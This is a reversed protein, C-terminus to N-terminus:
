LHISNMDIGYAGPELSNAIDLPRGQSDETEHLLDVMRVSTLPQKDADLVVMIRPRLRRTRYEAVVVAVEGSSLEILTGAPYIGVAQIFEEVLEAQFDIDKVDYLMKIAASPSTARAYSRHSTIADYCDVIGAIRAFIPIADGSLGQPYGSGNHREHHHAVMDLVDSNMLGTEAMMAVGHRVHERVATLEESTLEHDSNLLAPDVRLKGIDFLLGGIALSRLDSRPLGLQRGLAVGWISAGLSHQYTYKDQEKLRALWICADPNRSISDIMPEVSRKVRVVDVAAGDRAHQFVAELGDSLQQVAEEARPYEEAWDATDTYTVLRRKPFMAERSIRPRQVRTKRQLAYDIHRSKEIDVFVYQCHRRLNRIDEESTIRFGQLIFPTELWPRDLGSVYMGPKLDAVYVKVVEIM